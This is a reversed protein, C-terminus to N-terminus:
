KRFEQLYSNLEFVPYQSLDDTDAKLYAEAPIATVFLYEPQMEFPSGSFMKKFYDEVPIVKPRRGYDFDFIKGNSEITVHYSWPGGGYRRNTPWITVYKSTLWLVTAHKPDFDSQMTAAKILRRINQDCFGENYFRSFNKKLLATLLEECENPTGAYLSTSFL